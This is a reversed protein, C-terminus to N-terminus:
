QDAENKSKRITERQRQFVYAVIKERVAEDLNLFKIGVNYLPRDKGELANIRIIEGYVDIYFFPIKSLIMNAHVIQGQKVPRDICINMGSASINNGTGRGSCESFAKNKSLMLLIKDLKEDMRVFFEAIDGNIASGTDMNDNDSRVRGIKLKELDKTLPRLTKERISHFEEPTVIEYDIAYSFGGRVDSRLEKEETIM